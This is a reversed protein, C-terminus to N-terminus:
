LGPMNTDYVNDELPRREALVKIVEEKSIALSNTTGLHIGIPRGM